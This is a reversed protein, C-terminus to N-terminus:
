SFSKLNSKSNSYKMRIKIFILLEHVHILVFHNFVIVTYVDRSRLTDKFMILWFKFYLYSMFNLSCKALNMVLSQTLSLILMSMLPKWEYDSTIKNGFTIIFCVIALNIFDILNFQKGWRADFAHWMKGFFWVNSSNIKISAKVLLDVNLIWLVFIIFKWTINFKLLQLFKFKNTAKERLRSQNQFRPIM